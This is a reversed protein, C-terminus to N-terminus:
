LSRGIICCLEWEEDTIAIRSYDATNRGLRVVRHGICQVILMIM